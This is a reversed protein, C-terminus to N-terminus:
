SIVEREVQVLHLTVRVRGATPNDTGTTLTATLPISETARYPVTTVTKMAAAKIDLASVINNGTGQSGIALARTGSGNFATTTEATVRDVMWGAPLIPHLPVPDQAGFAKNVLDAYDLHYSITRVENVVVSVGNEATPM